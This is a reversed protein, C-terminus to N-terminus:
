NLIERVVEVDSFHIRQTGLIQYDEHGKGAILIVDGRRAMGIAQAIAARRDVQQFVRSQMESKPVDVLCDLIIKQPDETRPNDSTVIILDSNERAARMMMPRKGQDRDGGCGFVTILRAKNKNKKRIADLTQLSNRLADDTHAYDVFISLERQNPVIQLRGPVGTFNELGRRCIELELGAACGAAVASTANYVNFLGPMPIKIETKGTPTRLDFITGSFQQDIIRFSFDANGSGYTWLRVKPDAQLQAGYEDDINIIATPAPKRSSQLHKLFLKKKSQFYDEMTKHYDLHDRTLNTFIAADFHVSDVRNQKLAHSTVEMALAKGGLDVFDALRAQLQVADPTTMQTRWVKQGLHHNITGIVGCKMAAANLVAEVMYTTTTKGNTGTVGVCFLKQSPEGYFRAALYDLTERTNPVQIVRRSFEAAVRVPKEVVVAAAGSELAKEVFDHGDAKEGRIAVFLSGAAVQRSDMTISSIETESIAVGTLLHSLKM